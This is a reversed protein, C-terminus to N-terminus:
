LHFCASPNPPMFPLSPHKTIPRTYSLPLSDWPELHATTAESRRGEKAGGERVKSSGISSISAPKTADFAPKTPPTADFAPKGPPKADFAPKSSTPPRADFVPKSTPPRADFPPPPTANFSPKDSGPTWSSATPNFGGAKPNLSMIIYIILTIYIHILQSFVPLTVASHPFTLLHSYHIYIL